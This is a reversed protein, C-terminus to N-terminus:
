RRQQQTTTRMKKGRMDGDYNSRQTEPTAEFAGDSTTTRHMTASEGGAMM